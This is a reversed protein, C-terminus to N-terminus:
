PGDPLPPAAQRAPRWARLGATTTGTSLRASALRTSPTSTHPTQVNPYNCWHNVPDVSRRRRRVWQPGRRYPPGPECNLDGRGTGMVQHHGARGTDAFRQQGLTKRPQQRRQRFGFRQLHRRDALGSRGHPQRRAPHTHKADTNWAKAAAARTAQVSSITQTPGDGRFPDLRDIAEANCTFVTAATDTHALLGGDLKGTARRRKRLLDRASSIR